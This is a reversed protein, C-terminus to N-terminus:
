SKTTKECKPERTESKKATFVYETYLGYECSLVCLECPMWTGKLPGAERGGLWASVLLLVGVATWM